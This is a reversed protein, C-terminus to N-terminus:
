LIYRVLNFHKDSSLAQASYRIDIMRMEKNNSNLKTAKMQFTCLDIKIYSSFITLPPKKDTKLLQTM